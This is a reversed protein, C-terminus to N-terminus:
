SSKVTKQKSLNTIKLETYDKEIYVSGTRFIINKWVIKM